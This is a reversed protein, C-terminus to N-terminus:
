SAAWLAKVLPNRAQDKVSREIYKCLDFKTVNNQQCDEMSQNDSLGAQVDIHAVPLRLAAIINAAEQQSIMSSENGAMDDFMTVANEQIQKLMTTAHAKQELREAYLCVFACLLDWIGACGTLIEGPGRAFTMTQDAFRLRTDSPVFYEWLGIAVVSLAALALMTFACPRWARKLVLLVSIVNLTILYPFLAFLHGTSIEYATGLGLADTTFAEAAWQIVLAGGGERQIKALEEARERWPVFLDCCGKLTDPATTDLLSQFPVWLRDYTDTELALSVGEIGIGVTLAGDVTSSPSKLLTVSLADSEIKGVQWFSIQSGLGYQQSIDVTASFLCSSLVFLQLLWIRTSIKKQRPTRTWSDERVGSGFITNHLVNSVGSPRRPAQSRLLKPATPVYELKGGSFRVDSIVDSSDSDTASVRRRDASGTTNTAARPNDSSVSTHGEDIMISVM